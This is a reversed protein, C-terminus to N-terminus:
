SVSCPNNKFAIANSLFIKNYFSAIVRSCYEKSSGIGNVVLQYCILHQLWTPEELGRCREGIKGINNVPGSAIKAKSYVASNIHFM